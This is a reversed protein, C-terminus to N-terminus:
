HPPTRMDEAFNWLASSDERTPAKLSSRIDLAFRAADEPKWRKQLV